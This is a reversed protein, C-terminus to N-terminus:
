IRNAYSTVTIKIGRPICWGEFDCSCRCFTGSKNSWNRQKRGDVTDTSLSFLLYVYDVAINQISSSWGNFGFIENALNICKWAELYHVKIGGAGPRDSIYEPGLQKDLKAQLSAIEQASLKTISRTQPAFPNSLGSQDNEPLHQDGPRM